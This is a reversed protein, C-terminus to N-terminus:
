TLALLHQTTFSITGFYWSGDQSISPADVQSLIIHLDTLPTQTVAAILGHGAETSVDYDNLQNDARLRWAWRVVIGTEVTTGQPRRQRDGIPRTSGLGVSFMRPALQDTDRVFMEPVYRSVRWNSPGLVTKIQNEIRQRVEAVSLASM